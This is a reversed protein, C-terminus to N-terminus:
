FVLVLLDIVIAAVCTGVILRMPAIALILALSIATSFSILALELTNSLAGYSIAGGGVCAIIVLMMPTVGFRYFEMAKWFASTSATKTKVTRISFTIPSAILTEM